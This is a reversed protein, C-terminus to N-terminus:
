RIGPPCAIVYHEDRQTHHVCTHANPRHSGRGAAALCGPAAPGPQRRCRSRRAARVLFAQICSRHSARTPRLRPTERLWEDLGRQPHRCCRCQAARSVTREYGVAQHPREARPPTLCVCVCVCVCICACTCVCVSRACYQDSNTQRGSTNYASRRKISRM